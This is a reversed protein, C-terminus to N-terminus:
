WEFKAGFRAIRPPVINSPRLFNSGSSYTVNQEPNANFANFVDLFIGIRRDGGVRIGKEARVDLLTVNDQRRTGLPEALVRQTGYNFAFQFTRGQPQGSQHRLIPTLKIDWFPSEWTGHLKAQWTTFNHRGDDTNIEDNPTVRLDYQKVTNGFYANEFERVWTHAFTALLSWRSSFRKTGTIEWTYFDSDSNPVNRQMNVIPLSLNAPNLNFGQITPGDDSTNVRGDPGPDPINVPVNFAEYPQNINVREYRQRQGRWVFGTRVGFNTVLEREFWGAVERTYTDQLDPDMSETAAGGSSAVLCSPRGCAAEEGPDWVGNGNPDNWSYRKNWGGQVNPSVNFLFDAGPNWWYQGYNLKVVTKGNGSVDYTFGARPSFLNWDFVNEQAPFTIATPNFRSAPHEQEPLFGRYRDFRVGVNLTLRSNVQWTDNLFGAYTWLGVTGAGPEFLYVDTPVGNNLRHLVNGPYGDKWWDLTTERFIEGGVKFNHDGAWRDKFYSLSGLVQNRRRDRQWDRNGGTIINNGTDEFRPDTGNPLNPWDYGFQGGRVEFFTRDNVVSNWEGKWVWGWYLQEWTSDERLNIGTTNGLLFSDQRLPQHKRGAQAYAILKNNQTVNYTGKGGYNTLKTPHPAAPFNPIRASVYQDRFSGYWWLRDKVVYGGAGINVDHYETLRNLDSPELGGGGQLGRAIQDEDTNRSQISEDEYDAYASGHFANGGSKSIFNSQVGPWPMEASHAAANVAVEDFSGYDYYFGAADTGETAVIGEVTPRNQGSTGYTVYGSQTGAASGGVDIRNLQVGPSEALIAWLDRASPLNALQESDFNTSISTSQTDVVPSEGTVTVSEQLTAVGLEVNVTATFGLTVRIEERKVTSFGALEYTITYVGPPVAPFRYQGEENTTATRAGMMSPSTLTVTVGPLVAGTNDTVRGNLAGTTASVTQAAALSPVLLLLFVWRLLRM